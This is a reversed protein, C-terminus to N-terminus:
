VQRIDEIFQKKDGDYAHPEPGKLVATCLLPINTLLVPM